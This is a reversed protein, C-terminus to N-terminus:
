RAFPVTIEEGAQLPRGGRSALLQDVLPRVDGTPQIDRAISWLTDGPQVTHIAVPGSSVAAPRPTTLPGGATGGLHAPAGGPQAAWWMATVLLASLLLGRIRRPNPRMAVTHPPTTVSRM